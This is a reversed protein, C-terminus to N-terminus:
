QKCMCDFTCDLVDNFCTLLELNDNRIRYCTWRDLSLKFKDPLSNTLVCVGPPLFRKVCSMYKTSFIAGTKLIEIVKFNTKDGDRPIDFVVVPNCKYELAVASKEFSDFVEAKHM